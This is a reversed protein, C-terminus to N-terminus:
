RKLDNPLEGNKVLNYPEKQSIFYETLEFIKMKSYKEIVYEKGCYNLFGDIEVIELDIVNTFFSDGFDERMLSILLDRQKAKRVNLKSQLEGSFYKFITEINPTLISTLRIKQEKLAYYYQIEDSKSRQLSTKNQNPLGLSQATVFEGPYYIDEAEFFISTESILGKRLTVTKEALYILQDEDLDDPNLVITKNEFNASNIYLRDGSDGKIKFNGDEDSLTIEGTELNIIQLDVIRLSDKSQVNGEIETTQANAYFCCIFTLLIGLKKM